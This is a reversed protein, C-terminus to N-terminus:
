KSNAFLYDALKKTEEPDVIKAKGLMEPLIKEWRQKKYETPRHLGHCSNCNAKYINYGAVARDYTIDPVKLKMKDLDAMSPQALKGTASCAAIVSVLLIIILRKM